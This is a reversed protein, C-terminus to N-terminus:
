KKDASGRNEQGTTKQIGQQRLYHEIRDYAVPTTFAQSSFIIFYEMLSIAFWQGGKYEYAGIKEFGWERLDLSERIKYRQNRTLM